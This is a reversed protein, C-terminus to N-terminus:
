VISLKKKEVANPLGLYVMSEPMLPMQTLSLIERTLSNPIKKSLFCRSTDLNVLHGFINQFTTLIHMVKRIEEINAKCFIVIGNAYMLHSISPSNTALKIGHIIQSEKAKKLLRTLTETMLIFLYPSLPDAQRIGRSPKLHGRPAGNM